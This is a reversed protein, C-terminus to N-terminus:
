TIKMLKLIGELSNNKEGLIILRLKRKAALQQVNLGLEYAILTDVGYEKQLLTVVNKGVQLKEGTYPNSIIDINAQEKNIIAFFSSRAFKLAM